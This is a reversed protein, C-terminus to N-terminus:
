HAKGEGYGGGGRGVLLARLKVLLGALELCDQLVGNLLFITGTPDQLGCRM